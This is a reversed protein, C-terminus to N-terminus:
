PDGVVRDSFRIKAFAEPIHSDWVGHHNLAWGGSDRAPSPARYQNFRSFDMRWVDGDRPPVARADGHLPVKMGSWPIALEVTWGADRDSEDNLTGNIHVASKLGPFDWALFAIRKGRPHKTYGVGNFPQHRVGEDDMNVEPFQNFGLEKYSNEWIFLGEYITGHANIEFEYYAHDFAIFLEVDNEQWIPADRKVFKARVNPEEIEYGIYLCQDDWLLKVSTPYMAPKGSVLDVFDNSRTAAAWSPESLKGDLVIREDVRRATYTALSDDPVPPFGVNAPHRIEALSPEDGHTFDGWYLLLLLVSCRLSRQSM